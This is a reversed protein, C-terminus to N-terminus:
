ILFLSCIMYGVSMTLFLKSHLRVCTERAHQQNDNDANNVDERRSRSACVDESGEPRGMLQQIREVDDNQQMAGDPKYLIRVKRVIEAARGYQKSEVFKDREAALLALQVDDM